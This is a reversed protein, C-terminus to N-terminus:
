DGDKANGQAATRLAAAVAVVESDSLERVMDVVAQAKRLHSRAGNLAAEFAAHQASTFTLTVLKPRNAPAAVGGSEATGKLKQQFRERQQRLAEPDRVRLISRLDADRGAVALDILNQAYQKSDRRARAEELAANLALADTRDTISEAILAPFHTFGAAQCIVWRHEGNILAFEVPGEPDRWVLPLESPVWGKRQLSRAIQILRDDSCDKPNFDSPRISDLPRLHEVPISALVEAEVLGLKAIKKSIKPTLPM